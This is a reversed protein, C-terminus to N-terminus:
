ITYILDCSFSIVICIMNVPQFSNPMNWTVFHLVYIVYWSFVASLWLILRGPYFVLNSKTRSLTILWNCKEPKYFNILSHFMESLLLRISYLPGFFLLMFPHYFQSKTNSQLFMSSLRYLKFNRNQTFLKLMWQILFTNNFILLNKHLVFM